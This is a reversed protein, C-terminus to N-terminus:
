RGVTQRTRWHRYFFLFKLPLGDFMLRTLFGKIGSQHAFTVRDDLAVGGEVPEFIHEHRWYAMPGKVQWEAFGHVGSIAEHRALWRIPIFGFWLTFDLDGETLSTRGDHHLQIFIPPPTLRALAASDQHFAELKALTTKFVTRKEFTRHKIEDM